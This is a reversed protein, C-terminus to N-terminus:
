HKEKRTTKIVKAPVGGAVAYDPVDKNVFSKASVVAHKGITVGCRILCDAGILARKKVLVKGKRLKEQSYEHALITSGVGIIVNDEITILEPFFPDIITYAAIVVNKGVKVGIMRYLANKMRISPVLRCIHCVTSNFFLQLRGVHKPYDFVPNKTGTYTIDEYNM